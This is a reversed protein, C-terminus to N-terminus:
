TLLAWLGQVCLLMALFVFLMGLLARMHAEDRRAHWRAAMRSGFGAALAVGLWAGGLFPAHNQVIPWWVPEILVNGLVAVGAMIFGCFSATGVAQRLLLTRRLLPTMMTGGGIGLVGSLLGIPLGLWSHFSGDPMSAQRVERGYDRAIWLDLAALSFLLLWEPLSLTLWLGFGAGIVLGPLLRGAAPLSVHRLRWHARAAYAGTMAVAVLSALIHLALSDAVQAEVPMTLYFVPVYVLGGGVGAMGALVGALGGALVGVLLGWLLLEWFSELM